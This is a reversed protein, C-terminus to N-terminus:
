IALPLKLQVHNNEYPFHDKSYILFKVCGPTSDIAQQISKNLQDSSLDLQWTEHEIRHLEVNRLNHDKIIHKISTESQLLYTSMM